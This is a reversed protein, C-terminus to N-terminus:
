VSYTVVAEVVVESVKPFVESGTGYHAKHATRATEVRTCSADIAGVTPGKDRVPWCDIDSDGSSLQHHLQQLIARERATIRCRGKAHPRPVILGTL